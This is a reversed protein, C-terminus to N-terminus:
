RSAGLLRYEPNFTRWGKTDRAMLGKVAIDAGPSVGAISRRGLWIVVVFGTGDEVQAELSKVGSSPRLTLSRITGIVTAVRRDALDAVRVCSGVEDGDHLSQAHQEIKSAGRKM